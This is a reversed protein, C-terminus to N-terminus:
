GIPLAATKRDSIRCVVIQHNNTDPIYLIGRHADIGGPEDLVERSGDGLFNSVRQDAVGIKKIKNNYTDAVYVDGQHLVAGLPHQFLASRVPGTADGFDFLGRGALTFVMKRDFDAVRISSVESDAFLVKQGTRHLSSPQALASSPFPGDMHDERGSGILPFIAPRSPVYGWVQHSGAMAVLLTEDLFVCDWPSRLPMESPHNTSPRGHVLGTGAETRVVKRELDVLRLLQNETDCVYLSDGRLDAGQPRRFRAAGYPGDNRGALGNGVIEVGEVEPWGEEDFSLSVLLIRHNGTDAVYLISNQLIRVKGPFRLPSPHAEDRFPIEMKRPAVNGRRRGEGLTERIRSSLEEYTPEGRFTEVIMGEGDVLVLTPWARIAYRQWLDQASDAVVPHRVGQRAMAARINAPDKEHDFKATHIGIVHFPESRFEEELRELLPLVHMCNVCCYTWFDLLVVHGRLDEWSLSRDPGLWPGDAPFDPAQM